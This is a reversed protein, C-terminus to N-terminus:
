GFIVLSEVASDKISSQGVYQGIPAKTEDFHFTSNNRLIIQTTPSIVQSINNLIKLPLPIACTHLDQPLRCSQGAMMVALGPQM